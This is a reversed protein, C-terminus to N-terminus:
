DNLAEMLDAVTDFPGYVDEGKEASEIASYTNPNPEDDQVEFPFGHCRIAQQYFLATATSLDMGLSAFLAAAKAELEM